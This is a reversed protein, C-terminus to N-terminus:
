AAHDLLRPNRPKPAGYGALAQQGQRMSLMEDRLEIMRRRIATAIDRDLELVERILPEDQAAAPPASAILEGREALLMTATNLDGSRAAAAQKRAIELIRAYPSM